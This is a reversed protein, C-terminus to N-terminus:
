FDVEGFGVEMAGVVEALKDEFLRGVLGREM